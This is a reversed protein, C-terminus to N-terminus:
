TDVWLKAIVAVARKPRFEKADLNLIDQKRNKSEVSLDVPYLNQILRDIRTKRSWGFEQWWAMM